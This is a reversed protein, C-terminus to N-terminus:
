VNQVFEKESGEEFFMKCNSVVPPCGCDVTHILDQGDHM